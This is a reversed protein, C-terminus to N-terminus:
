DDWVPVQEKVALPASEILAQGGTGRVLTRWESLVGAVAAADARGGGALVAEVVGVGAHSAFAAGLGARQAAAAGQEMVEAVQVPLVSWRMVAATEPFAGHALGSRARWAADREDGDLVRADILGQPRLLREIEACQWEVQEPIGDVGILLVAGDAGGQGLARLAEGDVLDLASPLLDSAMVARAAAGAEKLRTFRAIVLRDADPRPRLKVTAEVIVGLTGFAGIFLKPLDYGAVNKVVKGGGKVTAGAATIM